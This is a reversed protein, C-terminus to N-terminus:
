RSDPSADGPDGFRTGPSAVGLIAALHVRPLIAPTAASHVRPITAPIAAGHVRPLVAWPAVDRVRSPMALIAAGHVRPPLTLVAAGNVRLLVALDAIGRTMGLHRLVPHVRVDPAGPQPVLLDICGRIFLIAPPPIGSSRITFVEGGKM